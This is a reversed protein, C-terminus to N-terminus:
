HRISASKVCRFGAHNTATDPSAPQRGAPRYAACYCDNCLWSGGRIVRAPEGHHNDADPVTNVPNYDPSRSYFSESYWDLTWEWVNGAMDYLGYNNPPFSKVPATGHFNDEATDQVPFGGQWINTMWRGDPLFEAGWVYPQWELGGRAAREWEAESPLRKGAWRAYAEADAFSVCVVPHQEKGAISSGPGDPQRWFAGPKYEWWALVDDLPVAAPAGKFHNAGPARKDEPIMAWQEPSFDAPLPPKEATTVYGTSQVFAAFQANTVETADMWFGEVTVRHIPGEHPLDASGMSFNGGPIWVMGEPAPGSPKGAEAANGPGSVVEAPRSSERCAVPLFLLLFHAPHFKM